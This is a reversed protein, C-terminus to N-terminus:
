RANDCLLIDDLIASLCVSPCRSQRVSLCVPLCRKVEWGGEGEGQLAGAHSTHAAGGYHIGSPGRLNVRLHLECLGENRLLLHRELLIKGEQEVVPAMQIELEATLTYVAFVVALLLLVLLQFVPFVRSPQISAHEKIQRGEQQMFSIDAYRSSGGVAISRWTIDRM